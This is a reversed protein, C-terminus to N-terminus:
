RYPETADQLLKRLQILETEVQFIARLLTERPLPAPTPARELYWAISGATTFPEKEASVESCRLCVYGKFIPTSTPFQEGAHSIEIDDV